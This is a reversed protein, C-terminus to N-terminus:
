LKVNLDTVFPSLFTAPQDCNRLSPDQLSGGLAASFVSILTASNGLVKPPRTLLKSSVYGYIMPETRNRQRFNCVGTCPAACELVRMKSTRDNRVTIGRRLPTLATLAAVAEVGGVGGRVTWTKAEGM